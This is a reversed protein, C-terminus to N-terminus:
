IRRLTAYKIAGGHLNLCFHTLSATTSKLFDKDSPYQKREITYYPTDVTLVEAMVNVIENLMSKDYSYM